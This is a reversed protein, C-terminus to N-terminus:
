SSGACYLVSVLMDVMDPIILFVVRYDLGQEGFAGGLLSDVFPIKLGADGGVLVTDVVVIHIGTLLSM